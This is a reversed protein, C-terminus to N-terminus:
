FCFKGRIDCVDYNNAPDDYFDNAYLTAGSRLKFRGFRRNIESKVQAIAELKPNPEDFLTGQWMTGRVLKSAILHLHTCYAGRRWAGRLGVKAAELLHDFRNTPSGLPVAACGSEMNSCSLYVTLESTRVEHYHLEEILREVNRVLWGYLKYPDKVKGALSGGRSIMKHPTRQPRIPNVPIGNLEQWLDHGVVTLVKRIMQGSAKALDLCTKIGYPELRRARGKAIGAIEQVPLKGLLEEEHDRDLV